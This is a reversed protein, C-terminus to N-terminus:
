SDSAEADSLLELARSTLDDGRGKQLRLLVKIAALRTAPGARRDNVIQAIVAPVDITSSAPANTSRQRKRASM